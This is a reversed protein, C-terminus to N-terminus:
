AARTSLTPLRLEARRRRRNPHEHIHAFAQRAHSWARAPGLGVAVRPGSDALVRVTLRLVARRRDSRQGAADPRRAAHTAPGCLPAPAARSRRRRWCSARSRQQLCATKLELDEHAHTWPHASPQLQDYITGYRSQQRAKAGISYCDLSGLCFTPPLIPRTRAADLSMCAGKPDPSTALVTKPAAARRPLRLRTVAHRSAAARCIVSGPSAM